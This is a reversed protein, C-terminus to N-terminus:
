DIKEDSKSGKPLHRELQWWRWSTSTMGSGSKLSTLASSSASTSGHPAHDLHHAGSSDLRRRYTQSIASRTMAKLAAKINSSESNYLHVSKVVTLNPQLDRIICGLLAEVDSLSRIGNIDLFVKNFRLTNHHNHTSPGERRNPTPHNAHHQDPNNQSPVFNQVLNTLTNPDSHLPLDCQFFPISPHRSKAIQISKKSKDVGAVYGHPAARKALLATTQGMDCGVELVIDGPIVQCILRRYHWTECCAIIVRQATSHDKLLRIRKFGLLRRVGEESGGNGSAGLSEKGKGDERQGSLKHSEPSDEPPRRPACQNSNTQVLSLNVRPGSISEVLGLISRRRKNTDVCWVRDGVAAASGPGGLFPYITMSYGKAGAYDVYGCHGGKSEAQTSRNSNSM